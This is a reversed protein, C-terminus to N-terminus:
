VAKSSLREELDLEESEVSDTQVNLMIETLHKNICTICHDSSSGDYTSLSVKLIVTQDKKKTGVKIKTGQKLNYVRTAEADTILEDCEDCFTRKM